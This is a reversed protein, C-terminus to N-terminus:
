DRIENEGEMKEELMEIRRELRIITSKMRDFYRIWKEDLYEFEKFINKIFVFVFFLLAFFAVIMIVIYGM